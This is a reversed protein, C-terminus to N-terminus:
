AETEEMHLTGNQMQIVVQVCRGQAGEQETFAIAAGYSLKVRCPLIMGGRHVDFHNGLRLSTLVLYYKKSHLLAADWALDDYTRHNEAQERVGFGPHNERSIGSSELLQGHHTTYYGYEDSVVAYGLAELRQKVRRDLM